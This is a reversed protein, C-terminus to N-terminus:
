QGPAADFEVAAVTRRGGEDAKIVCVISKMHRDKDELFFKCVGESVPTATGPELYVHDVPMTIGDDDMYGAFGLAPAHNAQKEVFNIMIHSHHDDFFIIGATDCFFQSQQKTLDAGLPGESTHSSANCTGNLFQQHDYTGATPANASPETSPQALTTSSADQPSRGAGRVILILIVVVCLGGVILLPLLILGGKRTPKAFASPAPADSVPVYHASRWQNMVEALSDVSLDCTMPPIVFTFTGDSASGAKELKGGSIADFVVSPQEVYKGVPQVRFESAASWAILPASRLTGSVAFGYPTLRVFVQGAVARAWLVGGFGFFLLCVIGFIMTAAVAVGVPVYAALHFPIYQSWYEPSITLCIGLFVFLASVAVFFLGRGQSVRLVLEQQQNGPSTKNPAVTTAAPPQITATAAFATGCNGCFATGTEFQTGCKTCFSM